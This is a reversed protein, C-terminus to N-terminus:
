ILLESAMCIGGVGVMEGVVCSICVGVCMCICMGGAERVGTTDM